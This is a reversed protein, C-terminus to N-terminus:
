GVERHMTVQTSLSITRFIGFFQLKTLQAAPVAVNVVVENDIPQAGSTFTVVSTVIPAGISRQMRSVVFDQAQQKTFEGIAAGRAAQRAIYEMRGWTHILLGGDISGGLLLLLMPTILAFEVATVGREDRRLRCFQKRILSLCIPMSRGRLVIPLNNWFAKM